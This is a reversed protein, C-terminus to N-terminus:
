HTNGNDMNNSLSSLKVAQKEASYLERVRHYANDKFSQVEVSSM